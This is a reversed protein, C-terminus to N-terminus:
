GPPAGNARFRGKRGEAASGLEKGTGTGDTGAKRPTPRTATHKWNQGNYVASVTSRSVGFSDALKRALGYPMREGTNMSTIQEVQALTLKTQKCATGKPVWRVGARIAHRMNEDKTVYELNLSQNNLKNSDIHNVEKGEPRQGLFAEAVLQHIGRIKRGGDFYLAVTMYGNGDVSGFVLNTGRRADWVSSTERKVRGQSSVSYGGPCM